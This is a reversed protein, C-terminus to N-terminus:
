DERPLLRRRSGDKGLVALSRRGEDQGLAIEGDFFVIQDDSGLAFSSGELAVTGDPDCTGTVTKGRTVALFSRYDFAWTIQRVDDLGKVRRVSLNSLDVLRAGDVFLALSFRRTRPPFTWGRCPGAVIPEGVVGERWRIPVLATKKEETLGYGLIEEGPEEPLRLASWWGVAPDPIPFREGSPLLALEKRRGRGLVVAWDRRDLVHTKADVPFPLTKAPPVRKEVPQSRTHLTEGTALDVTRVVEFVDGDVSKYTSLLAVHGEEEFGRVTQPMPEIEWVEGGDLPVSWLERPRSAGPRAGFPGDGRPEASVLVYRRDPSVGQLHLYVDPDDPSLDAWSRISAEAWVAPPAAVLLLAGFALVVRRVRAGLHIRGRTFALFSGLLLAAAVLVVAFLFVADRRHVVGLIEVSSGLAKTGWFLGALLLAAALAAAFGRDILASMFLTATALLLLLVCWVLHSVGFATLLSSASEGWLPVFVSELAALFVAYAAGAGLLFLCKAAWVKGLRVPLAALFEIRGSAVDAAILDSAVAVLFLGVMGPLFYLASAAAVAGGSRGHVLWKLGLSLVPAVALFGLLLARNERWEKAILARM